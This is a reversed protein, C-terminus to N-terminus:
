NLSEASKIEKTSIPKNLDLLLRAWLSSGDM